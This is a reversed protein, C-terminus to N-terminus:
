ALKRKLNMFKQIESECENALAEKGKNLAHYKAKIARDIVGQVKGRLVSAFASAAMKNMEDQEIGLESMAALQFQDMVVLAVTGEAALAEELNEKQEKTM